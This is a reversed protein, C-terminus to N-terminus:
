AGFPPPLDEGASVSLPNAMVTLALHALWIHRGIAPQEWAGPIDRVAGAVDQVRVQLAGSNQCVVEIIQPGHPPKITCLVGDDATQLSVQAGLQRLVAFDFFASFARGNECLALLLPAPQVLPIDVLCPKVKVYQYNTADAMIFLDVKLNQYYTSRADQKPNNITIIGFLLAKSPATQVSQRDDQEDGSSCQDFQGPHRHIMGVDVLNPHEIRLAALRQTQWHTDFLISGTSFSAKPGAPIFGCVRIERRTGESVFEGVLLAGAEQEPGHKQLFGTLYAHLSPILHESLIVKPLVGPQVEPAPVHDQSPHKPVTAPATTTRGLISVSETPSGHHGVPVDSQVSPVARDCPQRCQRCGAQRCDTRRLLYLFGLVFTVLETLALLFAAIAFANCGPCALSAVPEELWIRWFESAPLFPLGAFTGFLGSRVLFGTPILNPLKRM